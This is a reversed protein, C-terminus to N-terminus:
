PSLCFMGGSNKEIKLAFDKFIRDADANDWLQEEDLAEQVCFQDYAAGFESMTLQNGEWTLNTFAPSKLFMRLSSGLSKKAFQILVDPLQGITPLTVDTNSAAALEIREKQTEGYDLLMDPNDVKNRMNAWRITMNEREVWERAVEQVVRGIIFILVVGLLSALAYAFWVAVILYMNQGHVPTQTASKSRSSFAYENSIAPFNSEIVALLSSSGTSLVSRIYTSASAFFTPSDYYNGGSQLPNVQPPCYSALPHLQYNMCVPWLLYGSYAALYYAEIQILAGNTAYMMLAQDQFVGTLRLPMLVNQVTNMNLYQQALQLQTMSEKDFSFWDSPLLSFGPVVTANSNANRFASTNSPIFSTAWLAGSTVVVSVTKPTSLGCTSTCLTIKGTCYTTATSTSVNSVPALTNAVCSANVSGDTSALAHFCFIGTSSAFNVTVDHPFSMDVDGNTVAVNTMEGVSVNKM